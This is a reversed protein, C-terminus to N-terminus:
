HTPLDWWKPQDAPNFARLRAARFQDDDCAIWDVIHVGLPQAAARAVTLRTRLEGTPEHAAVPEDNLVLAAAAGAGLYLLCAHFGLQWPSTRRTYALGRFTADDDAFVVWLKGPGFARQDIAYAWVDDRVDERPAEPAPVFGDVFIPNRSMGGVSSASGGCPTLGHAATSLSM